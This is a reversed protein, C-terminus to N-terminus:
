EVDYARRKMGRTTGAVRCYYRGTFFGQRVVVDVRRTQSGDVIVGHLAFTGALADAEDQKVGDIFLAYQMRHVLSTKRVLIEHGEFSLVRELSLINLWM